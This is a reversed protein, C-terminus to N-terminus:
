VAAYEEKRRETIEGEEKLFECVAKVLIKDLRLKESLESLSISSSGTILKMVAPAHKEYMATKIVFYEGDFSRTGLIEKKKIADKLKECIKKAEDDTSLITFSDKELSYKENEKKNAQVPENKNPVFVPRLTEKAPAEEVTPKKVPIKEGEVEERTKYVAKKYTENLKFPVIRGESILDKLRTKEEDTLFQEFKGEVKESLSKKRLLAYIKNDHEMFTKPIKTEYLIFLGDKLEELEYEAAKKLGLKEAQEDPLISSYDQGKRSVLVM